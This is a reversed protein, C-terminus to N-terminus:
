MKLRDILIVNMLSKSALDVSDLDVLLEIYFVILCFLNYIKSAQM